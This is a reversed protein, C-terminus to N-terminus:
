AIAPPRAILSVLRGTRPSPEVGVERLMVSRCTRYARQAEVLNGEALHIRIVARHASERLLDARLAALAAEMALGFHGEEALRDAMAELVHLRLQRLRERDAVLWEDEWDPLLEGDERLLGAAIPAAPTRPLPGDRGAGAAAEPQLATLGKEILDRADVRVRPDVDVSGGSCQILNQTAQNVRWIGTRLSALARHEVTDPWLTGAARSRSTRGRLALLAVLRQAAVPLEVIRSAVVLRFSGLLVVEAAQAVTPAGDLSGGVTGPDAAMGDARVGRM